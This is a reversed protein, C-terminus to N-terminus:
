RSSGRGSKLIPKSVVALAWLTVYPNIPFTDSGGRRQVPWRGPNTGFMGACGQRRIAERTLRDSESAKPNM